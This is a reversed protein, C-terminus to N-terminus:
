MEDYDYDCGTEYSAFDAGAWGDDGAYSSVGTEYEGLTYSSDFEDYWM